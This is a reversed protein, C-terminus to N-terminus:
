DSEPLFSRNFRGMAQDIPTSLWAEVADAAHEITEEVIPRESESFQSLVHDVMEDSQGPSGIGVRLRAFEEGGVWSIISKMGKQGGSSGSARIRLTGVPLAADDYVILLADLGVSYHKMLQSVAEGSLNMFTMPQALIVKNDGIKGLGYRSRCRHQDLAIGHRKALASVVWFGVNHRTGAYDPGPNGLGVILRDVTERRKFGLRM